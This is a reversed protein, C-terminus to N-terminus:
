TISKKFDEFMNLITIKFDTRSTEMLETMKLNTEIISKKVNKHTVIEQKM